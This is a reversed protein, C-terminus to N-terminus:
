HRERLRASLVLGAAFLLAAFVAPGLHMLSLYGIAPHVGVATAFGAIGAIALVRWLAASPRAYRVCAFMAVGFSVLAGGFGARDHAILPILRPSIDGIAARSMGIFELDQPVFVSTMGITTITMGALSIGVSALLLLAHGRGRASRIEIPIPAVVDCRLERTGILGGLFLPLLLLTAVGHWTDLYGYGLYALFSAFGIGGSAALAWWAWSERRRRLVSALFLYMVGIAILVGGFSVRDHIMFHLIRCAQLTCLEAATMGLFRADHPLFHGTAGQVIAFAGSGLLVMASLILATL